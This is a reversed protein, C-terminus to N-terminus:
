RVYRMKPNEMDDALMLCVIPLSRQSAIDLAADLEYKEYRDLPPCGEVRDNYLVAKGETSFAALGHVEENRQVGDFAKLCAMRGGTYHILWVENPFDDMGMMGLEDLISPTNTFTPADLLDPM